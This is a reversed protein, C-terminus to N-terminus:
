HYSKCARVVNGAFAYGAANTSALSAELVGQCLSLSKELWKIARKKREPGATRLSRARCLGAPALPQALSVM